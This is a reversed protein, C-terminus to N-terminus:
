LQHQSYSAKKPHILFLSGMYEYYALESKYKKSSNDFASYYKIPDSVMDDYINRYRNSSASGSSSKIFKSTRTKENQKALQRKLENPDMPM